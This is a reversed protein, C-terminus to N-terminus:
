RVNFLVYWETHRLYIASIIWFFLVDTFGRDSISICIRFILFVEKRNDVCVFSLGQCM